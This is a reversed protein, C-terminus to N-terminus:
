ELGIRAGLDPDGLLRCVAAAFEEPQDAVLAHKGPVFDVGSLGMTTSVMPRGMSMAELVKLRVGGGMRMPVVFVGARELYPRVDPVGGTVTIGPLTALRQVSPVPNRGVLYCKAEPIRRRVAPWIRNAFWIAADVNPRFDMSGTFLVLPGAALDVAAHPSDIGRWDRRFYEVDVGNPVVNVDLGEDLDLLARRDPEAVTVMSDFLRCANREYLRLKRWQVFSYAAPLPRPLTAEFARRQLLYEANHEDLVFLPRHEAPRWDVAGVASMQRMVPLAFGALELGEVQVLDFREMSLLHYLKRAFDPSVLRTALDPTSSVMMTALRKMRSREPRPAVEVTRCFERLVSLAEQCDSDSPFSLLSIEVESSLLRAINYNRM